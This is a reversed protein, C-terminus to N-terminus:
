RLLCLLVIQCLLFTARGLGTEIRVHLVSRIILCILRDAEDVLVVEAPLGVYALQLPMVCVVAAM